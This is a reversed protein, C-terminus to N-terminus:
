RIKLHEQLRRAVEARQADTLCTGFEVDAGHARLILRGGEAGGPERYEVQAWHRNLEVRRTRVRKGREVVIREGDLKLREFDTAHREMYRFALFVVLIELGAFPFVLWAGSFAFGLSIALVLGALSGLVLRRGGTSLSNNRRAVFTMGSANEVISCSM